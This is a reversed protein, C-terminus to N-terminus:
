LADAAEQQTDDEMTIWVDVKEDGIFFTYERLVCSDGNCPYNAVLFNEDNFVFLHKVGWDSIGEYAAKEDRYTQLTPYQGDFCLGDGCADLFAQISEPSFLQIESLVPSTDGSRPMFSFSLFSGRRNIEENQLLDYDCPFAVTMDVGYERFDSTAQEGAICDVGVVVDPISPSGKLAVLEETLASVIHELQDIKEQQWRYTVAATLAVALLTITITALFRRM